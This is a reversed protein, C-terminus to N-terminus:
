QGAHFSLMNALQWKGDKLEIEITDSGQYGYQYEDDEALELYEQPTLKEKEWKNHEEVAKILWEEQSNYAYMTYGGDQNDKLLTFVPITVKTPTSM